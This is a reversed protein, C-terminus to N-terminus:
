SILTSSICKNFVEQLPLYDCAVAAINAAVWEDPGVSWWSIAFGANLILHEYLIRQTRGNGERFPHIMNLDGFSEAVAEILQTRSYGEYWGQGAMRSFIKSAEPEIRGVNCFRTNGKSIDLTRIEGAWSYVDRFLSSHLRQLYQLGYPPLVFLIQSAALESFDREARSLEFVDRIDLLNSLVDTDAYCYRDQGAGYKDM